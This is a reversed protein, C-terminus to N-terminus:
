IEYSRHSVTRSLYFDRKCLGVQSREGEGEGELQGGRLYLISAIGPTLPGSVPSSVLDFSLRRIPRLCRIESTNFEVLGRPRCVTSCIYRWKIKFM